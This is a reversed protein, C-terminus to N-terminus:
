LTVHFVFLCCTLWPQPPWVSLASTLNLSPTMDKHSAKSSQQRSWSLVDLEHSRFDYM